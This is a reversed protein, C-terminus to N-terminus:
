RAVMYKAFRRLMKLVLFLPILEAVMAELLEPTHGHSKGIFGLQELPSHWALRLRKECKSSDECVDFLHEDFVTINNKLNAIIQSFQVVM